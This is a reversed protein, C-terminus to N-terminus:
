DRVVIYVIYLLGHSLEKRSLEKGLFRIPRNQTFFFGAWGGELVPVPWKRPWQRFFDGCTHPPPWNSLGGLVQYKQGLYASSWGSDHELPIKNVFFINYFNRIKCPSPPDSFLWPLYSPAPPHLILPFLFSEQRLFIKRGHIFRM